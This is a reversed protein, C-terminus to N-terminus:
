KYKMLLAADGAAAATVTVACNTYMSSRGRGDGRGEDFIKPPLQADAAAAAAASRTSAYFSAIVSCINMDDM